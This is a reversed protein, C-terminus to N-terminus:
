RCNAGGCSVGWRMQVSGGCTCQISPNAPCNGTGVCANGLEIRGNWRPDNVSPPPQQGPAPDRPPPSLVTDDPEPEVDDKPPSGKDGSTDGSKNSDNSGRGDDDVQPAPGDSAGGGGNTDEGGVEGAQTPGPGPDDAPDLHSTTGAKREPPQAAACAALVTGAIILRGLRAYICSYHM